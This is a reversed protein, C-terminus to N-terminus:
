KEEKKRLLAKIESKMEEETKEESSEPAAGVDDIGSKKYDDNVSAMFAKGAKAAEQAANFALEQATCPKEYKATNVLDNGFLGAIEDIERMRSREAQVAAEIAQTNEASVAARVEGEIAAALEANEKRLEELNTAMLNGGEENAGSTEPSTNNDDPQSDTSVPISEPIIMGRALHITKGNVMLATRDASASISLPEAGEILEDAFGKEIAEKGTMYTTDAMMHSIVTESMGTKRVYIAAQAKDWADNAAAMEKLEDANYAGWIISWCKHIMILSSANVKVKDAACMILSGGSMAVGDVVCEIETGANSLERLRNHILISVGADGGLSNMKITLKKCGAVQELDNLFEKQIIYQGEIPKGTWWDVPQKEVIEGYMTIEANVGNSSAMAYFPKNIQIKPM